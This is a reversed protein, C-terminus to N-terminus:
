KYPDIYAPKESEHHLNHFNETTLSANEPHSSCSNNNLWKFHSLM